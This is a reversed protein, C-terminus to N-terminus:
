PSRDARRGLTSFLDKWKGAGLIKGLDGNSLGDLKIRAFETGIEVITMKKTDEAMVRTAEAASLILLDTLAISGVRWTMSARPTLDSGGRWRRGPRLPVLAPAAHELPTPARRM